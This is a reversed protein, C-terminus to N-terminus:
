ADFRSSRGSVGAVALGPLLGDFPVTPDFIDIGEDLAARFRAFVAPVVAPLGEPLGALRLGRGPCTTGSERGVLLPLSSRAFTGSSSRVMIMGLPIEPGLLLANAGPCLRGANPCVM